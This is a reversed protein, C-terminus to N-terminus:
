DLQQVKRVTFEMLPSVYHFADAMLALSGTIYAVERRDAAHILSRKNETDLNLFGSM